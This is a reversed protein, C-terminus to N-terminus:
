IGFKIKFFGSSNSSIPALSFYDGLFDTALIAVCVPIVTGDAHFAV